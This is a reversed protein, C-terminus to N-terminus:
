SSSKILEKFLELGFYKQRFFISHGSNKVMIFKLNEHEKYTAYTINGITWDKFEQKLYKDRGKWPIKNTASIGGYVNCVYDDVGYFIYVKVGEDLLKGIHVTLDLAFDSKMAEHVDLNGPSYTGNVGLAKQIAPNSFFAIAGREFPGYSDTQTLDYPDVNLGINMFIGFIGQTCNIDYKRLGLHYAMRCLITQAEYFAYTFFTILEAKYLTYPFSWMQSYSDILGNAIGIGKVNFDENGANAKMLYHALYPVYHGGYSVGTIYLPVKKYEPYIEFFRLFFTHLDRAICTQNRCMKSDDKLISFNTPAPQDIFLIDSITNWAYPNWEVKETKNNVVYPGGEAIVSFSTSYGPGGQLWLILNKHRLTSDRCRFLYYFLLSGGVDIFGTNWMENPFPNTEDSGTSPQSAVLPLLIWFIM